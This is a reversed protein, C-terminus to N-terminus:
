SDIYHHTYLSVALTLVSVFFTAILLPNRLSIRNTQPDRPAYRLMAVTLGITVTGMVACISHLHAYLWSTPEVM